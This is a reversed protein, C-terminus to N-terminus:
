GLCMGRERKKKKEWSEDKKAKEKNKYLRQTKRNSSTHQQQQKFFFFFFFFLVPKEEGQCRFFLFSVISSILKYAQVITIIVKEKGRKKTRASHDSYTIFLTKAEFLSLSNTVFNSRSPKSAM